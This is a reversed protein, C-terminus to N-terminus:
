KINHEKKFLLWQENIAAFVTTSIYIKEADQSPTIKDPHFKKIFNLYAKKVAAPEMLKDMGVREVGHGQWLVDPLTCLLVRIHNKQPHGVWRELRVRHVEQAM